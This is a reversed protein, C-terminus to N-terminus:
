TRSEEIISAAEILERRYVLLLGSLAKFTDMHQLGMKSLDEPLQCELKRMQMIISVPIM